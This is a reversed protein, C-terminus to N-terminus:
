FDASGCMRHGCKVFPGPFAIPFWQCIHPVDSQTYAGAGNQLTSYTGDGPTDGCHNFCLNPPGPVTFFFQPGVTLQLPGELGARVM